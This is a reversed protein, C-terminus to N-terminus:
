RHCPRVARLGCHHLPLVHMVCSSSSEAGVKATARKLRVNRKLRVLRRVRGARETATRM